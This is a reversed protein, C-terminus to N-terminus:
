QLNLNSHIHTTNIQLVRLKVQKDIQVYIFSIGLSHIYAEIIGIVIETLINYWDIIELGSVFLFTITM